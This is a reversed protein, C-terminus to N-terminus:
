MKSHLDLKRSSQPISSGVADRQKQFKEKAKFLILHVEGFHPEMANKTDDIWKLVRKYPGIIRKHDKEDLVQLQMIECVLSLDAISPQGSGLLFRGKKQLWVSEIKALSALLVKEAEAAAQQNLPLGFAPALVTSFVYVAVPFLIIEIESILVQVVVCTLTIGIWCLTSRQEKTYTLQTGIIQLEQFHVLWIDLFQMVKLFSLDEM